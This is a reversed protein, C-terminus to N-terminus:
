VISGHGTFGKTNVILLKSLLEQGFGCRLAAIENGACSTADSAHTCTKHSFSIGFALFGQLLLVLFFCSNLYLNCHMGVPLGAFWHHFSFYSSSLLPIPLLAVCIGMEIRKKAFVGQVTRKVHLPLVGDVLIAVVCVFLLLTRPWLCHIEYLILSHQFFQFFCDFELLFEGLFCRRVM